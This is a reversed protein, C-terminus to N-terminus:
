AHGEGNPDADTEFRFLQRGMRIQDGPRLKHEIRIRLGTGNSSGLDHLSFGNTAKDRVIAAHRRSLFPDDTFVIDGNERGLVTEDRYITYTDRGVGETTYQVLRAARFVEPTGFIKVGQQFAAGLPGNDSVMEFRLVQQGILITDGHTLATPDTIRIYVGNVSDLDVLYYAGDRRSLRAHRISLFPDDSFIVDGEHRGIDVQDRSLEIIEGDAGNAQLCVLHALAPLDGKCYGHVNSDLGKILLRMGCHKCFRMNSFNLEGCGDCRLQRSVSLPDLHDHAAMGAEPRYLEPQM